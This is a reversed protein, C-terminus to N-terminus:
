REGKVVLRYYMLSTSVVSVIIFSSMGDLLAHLTLGLVFMGAIYPISSRKLIYLHGLAPMVMSLILGLTAGKPLRKGWVFAMFFAAGGMLAIFVLTRTM